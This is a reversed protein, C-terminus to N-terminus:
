TAVGLWDPEVFEFAPPPEPQGGRQDDHRGNGKPKTSPMEGVVYYDLMAKVNRPNWGCGVYAFCTDYWRKLNPPETGIHFVIEDRWPQPPAYGTAKKFAACAPSLGRYVPVTWQGERAQAEVTVAASELPDTGFKDRM